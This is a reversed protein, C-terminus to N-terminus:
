PVSRRRPLRGRRAPRSGHRPRGGVPGPGAARGKSRWRAFSLVYVAAGEWDVAAENTSWSDNDTYRGDLPTAADRPNAPDGWYGWIPVPRLHPASADGAPPAANPGGPIMGPFLQPEARLTALWHHFSRTVGRTVGPLGSVYCLRLSNRGLVYQLNALAQECDEATGDDLCARASFAGARVFGAGLSGWHYRGAWQFPHADADARAARALERLRERLQLARVPDRAPARLYLLAAYGGLHHYNPEKDLPVLWREFEERFRPQGTALLLGAAAYMRVQRGVEANGDQRYAPCTPGDSQEDPRAALYREGALAAQLCREAFAPDHPRFQVAAFALTGVARGTALTGPEGALYPAAAEPANAGYPGYRPQCTTNAFAGSGDQVSLLWELGWRAEDLLDPVGNGSEPIGDDDGGPGFDAHALLLWFLAASTSANYLSLDGADHWGKVVGRPALAADSAHVWPGEAHAPEIATFARQYYFWRQVARLPRDFVQAGVDFPYSRLGNDAVLRYRGPAALATFDGVWAAGGPGLVESRISRVPGGGAFAVTGDREDVVQFAAFPRPSTFQKRGRPGYGVQSAALRLAAPEEARQLARVTLLLEILGARAAAKLRARAALAAAALAVVLSAVVLWRIARTSPM